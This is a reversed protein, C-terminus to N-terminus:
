EGYIESYAMHKCNEAFENYDVFEDYKEDRQRIIAIEDDISYKERILEIIRSKYQDEKPIDNIVHTHAPPVYPTWGNEKLLEDSPNFIQSNDITIIIENLYKVENGKIYREM